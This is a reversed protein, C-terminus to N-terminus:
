NSFQSIEDKIQLKKRKLKSVRITDPLPSRLEAQIKAELNTHKNQLTELHAAIAMDREQQKIVVRPIVFKKSQRQRYPNFKLFNVRTTFISKNEVVM